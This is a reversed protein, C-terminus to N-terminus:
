ILIIVSDDFEKLCIPCKPPEIDTLETMKADLEEKTYGANRLQMRYHRVMLKLQLADTDLNKDSARMLEAKLFLINLELSFRIKLNMVIKETKGRAENQQVQIIARPVSHM